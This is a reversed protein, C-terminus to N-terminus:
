RTSFKKVQLSSYHSKRTQKGFIRPECFFEKPNSRLIENIEFIRAPNKLAQFNVHDMREHWLKLKANDNNCEVNAANCEVHVIVEFNMKFLKGCRVGSSLLKGNENRIECKDKFSHFSFGKNNMTGISFLNRKLAPMLLVNKMERTYTIGNVTKQIM